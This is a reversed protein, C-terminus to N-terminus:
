AVQHPSLRESIVFGFVKKNGESLNIVKIKNKFKESGLEIALKGILEDAFSHSVTRVDAFDLIVEGSFALIDARIKAAFDRGGLVSGYDKFVLIM